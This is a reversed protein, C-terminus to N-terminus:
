QDSFLNPNKICCLIITSLAQISLAAANGQHLNKSIKGVRKQTSLNITFVILFTNKVNWPTCFRKALLLRKRVNKALM